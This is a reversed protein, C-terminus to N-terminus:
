VAGADIMIKMESATFDGRNYCVYYGAIDSDQASESWSVVWNEGSETITIDTATVAAVESDSTASVSVSDGCAYENCIAATVDYVVNHTGSSFTVSRTDSDVRDYVVEPTECGSADVCVTIRVNETSLMTEYNYTILIDGGMQPTATVQVTGAPPDPTECDEAILHFTTGAPFMDSGTPFVHTYGSTTADVEDGAGSAITVVQSGSVMWMQTVGLDSPFHVTIQHEVLVSSDYTTSPNVTVAGVGTASNACSPNTVEELNGDAFDVTLGSTKATITYVANFGDALGSAGFSTTQSVDLSTSEEDSDLQDSATVIVDLKPMMTIDVVFSCEGELADGVAACPLAAGTGDAFAFEVKDGEVDFATATITVTEGVQVQKSSATLSLIEPAFNVVEVDYDYKNNVSIMDVVKSDLTNTSEDFQGLMMASAEVNYDGQAMSVDACAYGIPDANTRDTMEGLGTHMDM